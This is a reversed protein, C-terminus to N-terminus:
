AASLTTAVSPPAARVAVATANTAVSSAAVFAGIFAAIFAITAAATRCGPFASAHGAEARRAPRTAFARIAASARVASVTADRGVSRGSPM